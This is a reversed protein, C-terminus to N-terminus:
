RLLQQPRQRLPLQPTKMAEHTELVQKITDSIIRNSIEFEFVARQIEKELLDIKQEITATVAGIGQINPEMMGSLLLRRALFAKDISRSLAIENAIRPTLYNRDPLDRLADVLPGSVVTDDGLLRIEDASVPRSSYVLKLLREHSESTERAIKPLLGVGAVTFDHEGNQIRYDGLVDTLWKSAAEPDPWTKSLTTADNAAFIRSTGTCNPSEGQLLCWGATVTDKILWIPEKGPCGATRGGIWQICGDFRDVQKKAAIANRGSATQQQWSQARAARMMDHFPNNSSALATMSSDCSAVAQNWKEEVRVLYHQLLQCATPKARCLISGPLATAAAQPIDDLTVLTDNLRRRFISQIDSEANFRGCIYDHKLTNKALGDLSDSESAPKSAAQDGGLSYYLPINSIATQAAASGSLLAALGLLSLHIRYRIKSM